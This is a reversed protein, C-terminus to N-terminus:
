LGMAGVGGGSSKGVLGEVVKTRRRREEEYPELAIDWWLPPLSPSTSTAKTGASPSPTVGEMKETEEDKWGGRMVEQMRTWRAGKVKRRMGHIMEWTAKVAEEESENEGRVARAVHEIGVGAGALVLKPPVTVRGLKYCMQSVAVCHLTEGKSVDEPWLAPPSSHATNPTNFSSEANAISSDQPM